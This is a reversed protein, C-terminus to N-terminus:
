FTKSKHRVLPTIMCFLLNFRATIRAAVRSLAQPPLASLPGAAVKVGAAGLLYCCGLGAVLVGWGVAVGLLLSLLDASLLLFGLLGALSLLLRGLWPPGELM